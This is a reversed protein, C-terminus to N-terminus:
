KGDKKSTIGLWREVHAALIWLASAFTACPSIISALLLPGEFLDLHRGTAFVLAEYFIWLVVLVANIVVSSVFVFKASM